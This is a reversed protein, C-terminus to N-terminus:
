SSGVSVRHNSILVAVSLQEQALGLGCLFFPSVEGHHALTSWPYARLYSEPQCLKEARFKLVM